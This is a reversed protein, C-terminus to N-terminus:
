QVWFRLGLSIYYNTFDYKLPSGDSRRIQEGKTHAGSFSVPVNEAYKIKRFNLQRFGLSLLAATNDSWHMEGGISYNMLAALGKGEVTFNGNPPITVTSYATKTAINAAGVAGSAFVKFDKNQFFILEVGVKPAYASVESTYSYNATAGTSAMGRTKPPKIVELGFLWAIKATQFVFGFEGGSHTDFGKSFSTASSEREFYNKNVSSNGYTLNFYGGFNNDSMSFVRAQLTPSILFFLVFIKIM